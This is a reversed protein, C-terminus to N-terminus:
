KNFYNIKEQNKNEPKNELSLIAKYRYDCDLSIDDIIQCFYMNSKERYSDSNMLMKVFDIKYPTGINSGLKPYVIDIAKYGMEDKDNFSIIARAALSMLFPDISSKECIAFLYQRLLKTGSMEYMTALKNVTEITNNGEKKYFMDIAKIRTELSLTMDVISKSLNEETLSFDDNKDSENYMIETLETIKKAM